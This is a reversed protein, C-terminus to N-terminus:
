EKMSKLNLLAEAFLQRWQNALPQSSDFTISSLSHTLRTHPNLGLAQISAALQELKIEADKEIQEVATKDNVACRWSIILINTMLGWIGTQTGTLIQIESNAITSKMLSNRIKKLIVEDITDTTDILVPMMFAQLPAEKGGLEKALWQQLHRDNALAYTKAISFYAIAWTVPGTLDVYTNTLNIGLYSIALLGIQSGSFAANLKDRDMGRFFAIATLWIIILSILAYSSKGRLVHLYDQHTANDIATALIEVGPHLKNVATAKVDLLSSATSGIIITKGTFENAPRKPIKSTLDLYVDSLSVYHYTFPPGRWNLLMKQPLAVTNSSSFKSLTLPLSSLRWSGEDRWLQYERVIGDKDPEINHFGIRNPKLAATFHPLVVAIHPDVAEATQKSALNSAGPIQSASIQSLNDQKSSLRLFPFFTNDTHEIVDNFYTDSDPNFVDAESFLVDFIIAKPHQSEIKEVLEGFVQRPWPWRGYEGAMAALSAENIDLIIINTDPKPTMVRNRIMLDFAKDRMNEGIHFVGADLMVFLSLAVALYLYFSQALKAVLKAMMRRMLVNLKNM